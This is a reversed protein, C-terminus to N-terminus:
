LSQPCIRLYHRLISQEVKARQGLPVPLQLQFAIADIDELDIRVRPEVNISNLVQQQAQELVHVSLEDAYGAIAENGAQLLIEEVRQWDADRPVHLHVTHMVFQGLRTENFVPNGLLLSNPITVVRGVTGQQASAYSSETLTFSLVNTDIVQGKLKNFEIRDGVSFAHTSTRYISGMMCLIMEKTALVIAAAIAVMSVALTQLERGWIMMLGSVFLVFWINRLTVLWRRKVELSLDTRQIVARKVLMRTVILFVIFLLSALVDHQTPKDVASPFIDVLWSPMLSM